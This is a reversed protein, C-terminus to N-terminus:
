AMAEAVLNNAIVTRYSNQYDYAAVSFRRDGRIGRFEYYGDAPRSWAQRIIRNSREDILVVRRAVPLNTPTAAIAVHGALRFLGGDELDIAVQHAPSSVPLAGFDDHPSDPPIFDDV